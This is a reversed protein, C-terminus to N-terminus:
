GCATSASARWRASTNPMAQTNGLEGREIVGAVRRLSRLQRKPM